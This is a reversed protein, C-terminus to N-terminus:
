LALREYPGAVGAFQSEPLEGSTVNCQDERALKRGCAKRGVLQPHFFGETTRLAREIGAFHRHSRYHHACPAYYASSPVAVEGVAIWARVSFDHRQAFRSSVETIMPKAVAFQKSCNLRAGHARSRGNM